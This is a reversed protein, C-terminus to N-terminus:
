LVVPNGFTAVTNYKGLGEADFTFSIVNIYEGKERILMEAKIPKYLVPVKSNPFASVFAFFDGEECKVCVRLPNSTSVIRKITVVVVEEELSATTAQLKEFLSM